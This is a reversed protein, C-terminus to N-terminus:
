APAAGAMAAFQAEDFVHGVSSFPHDYCLFVNEEKEVYWHIMEQREMGMTPGTM